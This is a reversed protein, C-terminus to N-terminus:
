HRSRCRRGPAVVRARGRRSRTSAVQTRHDALTDRWSHCAKVCRLRTEDARPQVFNHLLLALSPLWFAACVPGSARRSQLQVAQWLPSERYASRPARPPTFTSGAPLGARQAPLPARSSPSRWRVYRGRENRRRQACLDSSAGRRHAGHRRALLRAARECRLLHRCLLPACCCKM